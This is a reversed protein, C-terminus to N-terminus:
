LNIFGHRGREFRADVEKAVHAHVLEVFEVGTGFHEDKRGGIFTKSDGRELGHGAAARNDGAIGGRKGFGDVIGGNLHVRLVGLGEGIGDVFHESGGEADGVLFAAEGAGAM